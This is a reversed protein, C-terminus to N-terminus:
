APHHSPGPERGPHPVGRGMDGWIEGYRGMDRPAACREWADALKGMANAGRFKGDHLVSQLLDEGGVLLLLTNRACRLEMSPQPRSEDGRAYDLLEEKVVEFTARRVDGVGYRDHYSRLAQWRLKDAEGPLLAAPLVLRLRGGSLVEGGRRSM